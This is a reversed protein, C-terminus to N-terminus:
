QLSTRLMIGRWDPPWGVSNHQSYGKRNHLIWHEYLGINTWMTEINKRKSDGCNKIHKQGTRNLKVQRAAFNMQKVLIM